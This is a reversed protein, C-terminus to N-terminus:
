RGVKNSGVGRRDSDGGDDGVGSSSEVVKGRSMNGMVDSTGIEKEEVEEDVGFGAGDGNGKGVKDEEDERTSM